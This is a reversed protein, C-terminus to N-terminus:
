NVSSPLKPSFRIHLSTCSSGSGWFSENCSSPATFHKSDPWPFDAVIQSMARQAGPVIPPAAHWPLAWFWLQKWFWVRGLLFLIINESNKLSKTHNCYESIWVKWVVFIQKKKINQSTNKISSVRSWVPTFSTPNKVYELTTVYPSQFWPIKHSEMWNPISFFWGFMDWSVLFVGDNKLPTPPEVVLWFM